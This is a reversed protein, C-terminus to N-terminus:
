LRETKHSFRKQQKGLLNWNNGTIRVLGWLAIEGNNFVAFVGYIQIYTYYKTHASIWYKIKTTFLANIQNAYYYM